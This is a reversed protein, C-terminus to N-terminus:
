EEDELLPSTSINITFYRPNKRHKLTGLIVCGTETQLTEKLFQHWAQVLDDNTLPSEDLSVVELLYAGGGEYTVHLLFKKPPETSKNMTKEKECLLARLSFLVNM